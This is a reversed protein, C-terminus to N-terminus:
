EEANGLSLASVIRNAGNGDIIKQGTQSIIKAQEFDNSILETMKTAISNNDPQAVLACREQQWGNCLTFHKDNQSVLVTAIGAYLREAHSLGPAGIALPCSLPVDLVSDCDTIIRSTPFLGLLKEISERYKFHPGILCIPRIAATLNKDSLLARLALATKNKSDVAGFGVLCNTPPKQKTFDIKTQAKGGTLIPLYSPGLLQGSRPRLAPQCNVITINEPCLPVHSDCFYITQINALCLAPWNINYSDCIIAKAKNQKAFLLVKEVSSISSEEEINDTTPLPCLSKLNKVPDIFWRVEGEIRSRLALMRKLHGNGYQPDTSVRFLVEKNSSKTM